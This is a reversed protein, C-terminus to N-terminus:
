FPTTASAELKNVRRSLMTEGIILSIFHALESMDKYSCVIIM